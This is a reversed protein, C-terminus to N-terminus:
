ASTKQSTTKIRERSVVVTQYKHKDKQAIKERVYHANKSTQMEAAESTYISYSLEKRQALHGKPLVEM